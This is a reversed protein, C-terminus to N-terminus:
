EPDAGIAKGTQAALEDHIGFLDFGDTQDHIEPLRALGEGSDCLMKVTEAKAGALAPLPLMGDDFGDDGTM